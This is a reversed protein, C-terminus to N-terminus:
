PEYGLLQEMQRLTLSKPVLRMFTDRVACAVPHKWRSMTGYRRAQLMMRNTRGVRRREYQRLAAVADTEAHLCKALVVADEIAQAAGQGLSPVMAHAADGLLTARGHSWQEIPPRDYIDHRLIAAEETAAVIAGIPKLWDRFREYVEQRRGGPADPTGEPTDKTGFWFVKGPSLQFFGFVSGRGYAQVFTSKSIREIDFDAIGRWRTYGAYRPAEGAFHQARITSNIGDAGVVIDGREERGDAFRVTVGAADQEYGVCPANVRVVDPDLADALTALLEGRHICVGM